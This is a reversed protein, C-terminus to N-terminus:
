IFRVHWSKRLKPNQRCLQFFCTECYVDGRVKDMCHQVLISDANGICDERQTCRPHGAEMHRRQAKAARQRARRQQQRTRKGEKKIFVQLAQPMTKWHERPFPHVLAPLLNRRVICQLKHPLPSLEESRQCRMSDSHDNNSTCGPVHTRGAPINALMRTNHQMCHSVQMSTSVVPKDFGHSPQDFSCHNYSPVISLTQDNYNQDAVADQEFVIDSWQPHVAKVVTLLEEQDRMRQMSHNQVKALVLAGIQDMTAIRVRVTSAQIRLQALYM